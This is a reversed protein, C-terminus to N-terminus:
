KRHTENPTQLNAGLILIINTLDNIIKIKNENTAKETFEQNGLCNIATKIFSSNLTDKDLYNSLNQYVLYQIESYKAQPNLKYYLDMIRAFNRKFTDVVNEYNKEYGFTEKLNDLNSLYNCKPNFVKQSLLNFGYNCEFPEDYYNDDLICIYPTLSFLKIYGVIKNNQTKICIQHSIGNEIEDFLDKDSSYSFCINFIDDSKNKLINILRHENFKINPFCEKLYLYLIKLIALYVNKGGLASKIAITNVKFPITHSSIKSWNNEIFEKTESIAKKYDIGKEKLRDKNKSFCKGVDNLLKKKNPSGEIFIGIKGNEESIIKFYSEALELDGNSLHRYKRNDDLSTVITPQNEGRERRINFM